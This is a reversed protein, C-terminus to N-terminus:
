EKEHKEGQQRNLQLLRDSVYSLTERVLGSLLYYGYAAKPTLGGESDSDLKLYDNLEIMSEVRNLADICEIFSAQDNGSDFFPHRPIPRAPKPNDIPMVTKPKNM